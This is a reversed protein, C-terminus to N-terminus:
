NLRALKEPNERQNLFHSSLVGNKWAEECRKAFDRETGTRSVDSRKQTPSGTLDPEDLLLDRVWPQLSYAKKYSLGDVGTQYPIDQAMLSNAVPNQADVWLATTERYRGSSSSKRSLLDGFGSVYDKGNGESSAKEAHAKTARQLMSAPDSLQVAIMMGLGFLLSLGFWSRDFRQLGIFSGVSTPLLLVTGGM